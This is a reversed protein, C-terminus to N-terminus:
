EHDGLPEDIVLRMRKAALAMVADLLYLRRGNRRVPILRGSREWNSLTRLSVGFCRAVDAAPVFTPAPTEIPSHPTPLSAFAKAAGWPTHTKTM